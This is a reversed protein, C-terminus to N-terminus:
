WISSKPTALKKYLMIHVHRNQIKQIHMYAHSYKYTHAYINKPGHAYIPKQIQM